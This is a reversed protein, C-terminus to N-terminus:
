LAALSERLADMDDVIADAGAAEFMARKGAKNALAVCRLHSKKAAEVDTRSDGVFVVEAREVKIADLATELPWMDPKMREPAQYPRGVVPWVPGAMGARFLFREVAAGVNHSGVGGRLGADLAVRVSELGGAAAVASEVATLEAAVLADEVADLVPSGAANRLVEHP